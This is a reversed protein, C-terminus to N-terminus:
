LQVAVKIFYYKVKEVDVGESRLWGNGNLVWREELKEGGNDRRVTMTGKPNNAEEILKESKDTQLTGAM